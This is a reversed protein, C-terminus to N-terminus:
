VSGTVYRHDDYHGGKHTIIRVAHERQKRTLKGYEVIRGAWKRFLHTHEERVKGAEIIEVISRSLVAPNDRLLRRWETRPLPKLEPLRDKVEIDKQHCLDRLANVGEQSSMLMGLCFFHAVKVQGANIRVKQGDRFAGPKTVDGDRDVVNFTAFVAEFTGEEGEGTKLAIPARFEKRETM